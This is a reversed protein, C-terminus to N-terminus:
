IGISNRNNVVQNIFRWLWSKIPSCNAPIKEIIRSIWCSFGKFTKVTLCSYGKVDFCGCIKFNLNHMIKVFEIYLGVM